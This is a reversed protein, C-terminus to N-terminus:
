IQLIAHNSKNSHQQKNSFELYVDNSVMSNRCAAKRVKCILLSYIVRHNLWLVISFLMLLGQSEKCNQLNIKEGDQQSTVLIEQYRRLIEVRLTHHCWFINQISIAPYTPSSANTTYSKLWILHQSSLHQTLDSYTCIPIM